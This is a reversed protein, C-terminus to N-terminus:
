EDQGPKSLKDQSDKDGFIIVYIYAAVIAGVIPGVWYVWHFNWWLAEPPLGPPPFLKTTLAPGFSRAPNMGAGTFPIAVLHGLIILSGIAFPAIKTMGRKDVATAFVTFVLLGTLVGEIILTRPISWAPNHVGLAPTSLAKTWILSATFAGLLQLFIYVLAKIWHINGTISLAFTVAPNVHGGSIRGIAIIAIMIGIGHALAISIVAGNDISGKGITIVTAISGLGIFVFLFTGFFEALGQTWTNKNKLIEM